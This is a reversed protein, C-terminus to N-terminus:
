KCEINNIGTQLGKSKSNSVMWLLFLHQRNKSGAVFIVSPFSYPHVRAQALSGNAAVSSKNDQQKESMLTKAQVRM